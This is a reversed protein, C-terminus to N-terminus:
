MCFREARSRLWLKLTPLRGVALAVRQRPRITAPLGWFLLGMHTPAVNPLLKWIGQQQHCGLSTSMLSGQSNLILKSREEGYVHAKPNTLMRLQHPFFPTGLLDPIEICAASSERAATHITPHCSTQQKSASYNNLCTADTM